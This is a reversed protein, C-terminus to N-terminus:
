KVMAKAGMYIHSGPLQLRTAPAECVLNEQCVLPHPRESVLNGKPILDREDLYAQVMGKYRIPLIHLM